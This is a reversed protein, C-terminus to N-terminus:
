LYKTLMHMIFKETNRTCDLVNKGENEGSHTVFHEAVMTQHNNM